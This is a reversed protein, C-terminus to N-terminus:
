SSHHTPHIENKEGGRSFLHVLLQDYRNILGHGQKTLMFTQWFVSINVATVTSAAGGPSAKLLIFQIAAVTTLFLFSLIRLNKRHRPSTIPKAPSDVPALLSVAIVAFLISLVTLWILLGTNAHGGLFIALRGISPILLVSLLTCRAAANCHAGGAFSRYLSIVALTVLSERFSGALWAALVVLIINALTLTLVELSFAIIEEQDSNLNLKNKLYSAIRQNIGM